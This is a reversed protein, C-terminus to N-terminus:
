GHSFDGNDYIAVGAMVIREHEHERVPASAEIDFCHGNRCAVLRLGLVMCFANFTSVSMPAVSM